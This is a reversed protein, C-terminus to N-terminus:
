FYLPLYSPMGLSCCITDAGDSVLPRRIVPRWGSMDNLGRGPLNPYVHTELIPLDSHPPEVPRVQRWDSLDSARGSEEMLQAPYYNAFRNTLSICGNGWAGGQQKIRVKRSYAM